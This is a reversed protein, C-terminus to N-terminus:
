ITSIENLELSQLAWFLLVIRSRINLHYGSNKEIEITNHVEFKQRLTLCDVMFLSWGVLSVLIAVPCSMAENAM